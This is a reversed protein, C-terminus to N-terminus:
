INLLKKRMIVVIGASLCLFLMTSSEPVKSVKIHDFYTSKPGPDTSSTGRYDYYIRTVKTGDFGGEVTYKTAGQAGGNLTITRNTWPNLDMQVPIDWSWVTWKGAEDVLKLSYNGARDNAGRKKVSFEVKSNTLDPDSEYQYYWAGIVPSTGYQFVTALAPEGHFEDLATINPVEFSSSEGPYLLEFGQDWTQAVNIHGDALNALWDDYTSIEFNPSANAVSFCLLSSFIVTQLTKMM